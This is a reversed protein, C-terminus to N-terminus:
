EKEPVSQGDARSETEPLHAAYSEKLKENAAVEKSVLSVLADREQLAALYDRSIPDLYNTSIPTLKARYIRSHAIEPRSCKKIRVAFRAGPSTQM